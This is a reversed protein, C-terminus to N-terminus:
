SGGAKADGGLLFSLGASILLSTGPNVNFKMDLRFGLSGGMPVLLGGGVHGGGVTSMDKGSPQFRTVDVGVYVLAYNTDIPAEMKMSLSVNGWEVGEAKGSSIGLDVGGGNNVWGFRMGGQPQIETVDEEDGVQNPLLNGLFLGFTMGERPPLTTGEGEAQALCLVSPLNVLIVFTMSMLIKKM